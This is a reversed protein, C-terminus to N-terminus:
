GNGKKLFFNLEDDLPLVQAGSLEEEKVMCMRSEYYVSFYQFEFMMM